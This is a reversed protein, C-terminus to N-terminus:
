TKAPKTEKKGEEDDEFMQKQPIDIVIQVRELPIKTGFETPIEVEMKAFDKGQQRTVKTINAEKITITKM